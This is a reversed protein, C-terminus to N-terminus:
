TENSKCFTLVSIVPNLAIYFRFKTSPKDKQTTYKNKLDQKIETVACYCNVPLSNRLMIKGDQASMRAIQMVFAVAVYIKYFAYEFVAILNNTPLASTAKIVHFYTHLYGQRRWIFPETIRQPRPYTEPCLQRVSPDSLCLSVRLKWFEKEYSVSPVRKWLLMVIDANRNQLEM